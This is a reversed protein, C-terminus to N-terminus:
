PVKERRASYDPSTATSTGSNACRVQEGAGSAAMPVVILMARDFVLDSHTERDADAEDAM